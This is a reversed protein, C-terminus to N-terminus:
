TRPAPPKPAPRVPAGLLPGLLCLNLLGATIPVVGVLALVTGAVGQVVNLGLYILVGGGVVRLIRGLPTAMWEAFRM